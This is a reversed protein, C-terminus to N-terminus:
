IDTYLTFRSAGEHNSFRTKICPPGFNLPCVNPRIREEKFFHVRINKSNVFEEFWHPYYTMVSLIIEIPCETVSSNLGVNAWQSKSLGTNYLSITRSKYKFKLIVLESRISNAFILM